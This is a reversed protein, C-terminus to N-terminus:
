YTIIDMALGIKIPVPAVGGFPTNKDDNAGGHWINSMKRVRTGFFWFGNIRTQMVREAVVGSTDNKITIEWQKSGKKVRRYYARIIDNGRSKVGNGLEFKGAKNIYPLFELTVENLQRWGFLLTDQANYWPWANLHFGALKHTDGIDPDVVINGQEDKYKYDFPFNDDRNIVVMVEFAQLKDAKIIKQGTSPFAKNDGAKIAYPKLDELGLKFSAM